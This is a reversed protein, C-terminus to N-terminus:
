QLVFRGFPQRGTRATIAIQLEGVPLHQRDLLMAILVSQHRNIQQTACAVQQGFTSIKVRCWRQARIGPAQGPDFPTSRILWPCCGAQHNGFAEGMAPKGLSTTHRAVTSLLRHLLWPKIGITAQVAQCIAATVPLWPHFGPFAQAWQWTGAGVMARRGPLEADTGPQRQAVVTIQGTPGLAPKASQAYAAVGAGVEGAVVAAEAM